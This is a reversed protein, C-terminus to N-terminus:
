IIKHKKGLLYLIFILVMTGVTINITIPSDGYKFFENMDNSVISGIIVLISNIIFYAPIFCSFVMLNTDKLRPILYIILLIIFINDTLYGFASWCINYEAKNIYLLSLALYLGIVLYLYYKKIFNVM